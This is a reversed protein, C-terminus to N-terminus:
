GCGSRAGYRRHQGYRSHCKSEGLHQQVELVLESGDARKVKLANYISPLQGEPFVADVVAGIVRLVKGTNM